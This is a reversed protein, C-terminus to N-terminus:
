GNKGGKLFELKKQKNVFPLVFLIWMGWRFIEGASNIKKGHMQRTKNKMLNSSIESYKFGLKLLLTVTDPAPGSIRDSAFISIVEKGYARLRFTPDTVKKRTVMRILGKLFRLGFWQFGHKPKKDIFRSGLVMDVDTREIGALFYKIDKPNFKGNDDWEIIADYHNENAFKMGLSLANYYSSKLPMVLHQIKNNVLLEVTGDTSGHDIVLVDSNESHIKLDTIIDM